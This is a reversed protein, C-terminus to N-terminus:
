RSGAAQTHCFDSLFLVTGELGEAAVPDDRGRKELELVDLIQYRSALLWCLADALAFTM